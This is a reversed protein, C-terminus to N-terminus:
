ARDSTGGEEEDPALREAIEFSRSAALRWEDTDDLTEITIRHLAPTRAAKRTGLARHL